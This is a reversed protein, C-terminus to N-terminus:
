TIVATRRSGVALRYAIVDVVAAALMVCCTLVGGWSDAAVNQM